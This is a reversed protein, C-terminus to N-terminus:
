YEVYIYIKRERELEYERERVSFFISNDDELKRQTRSEEKAKTVTNM